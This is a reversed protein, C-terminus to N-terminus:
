FGKDAFERAYKNDPDVLLLDAIASKAETKKGLNSLFFARQELFYADSPFGFLLAKVKDLGDAYSKLKVCAKVYMVGAEKHYPDRNLAEGSYNKTRIFENAQEHFNALRLWPELAKPKLESARQFHAIAKPIDKASLYLVGLRHHVFYSDSETSALKKMRDIAQPIKNQKEFVYSEYVLSHDEIEIAAFVASSFFIFFLFRM